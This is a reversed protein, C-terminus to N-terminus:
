RVSVRNKGAGYRFRGSFTEDALSSNVPYSIRDLGILETNNKIGDVKKNYNISANINTFSFMSFSFYSLSYKHYLANELERDGRTLSRYDKLTYGEAIKSIDSFQTSISYNLRISESSKLQLKAYLDPLVKTQNNKNEAGLQTDKTTYQHVSIGPNFTFKGSIVKYHLGLFM